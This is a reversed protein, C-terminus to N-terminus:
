DGFFLKIAEQQEPTILGDGNLDNIKSLIENKTVLYSNYEMDPGSTPATQTWSYQPKNDFTGRKGISVYTDHCDINLELSHACKITDILTNMNKM